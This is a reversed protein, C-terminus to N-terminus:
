KDKGAMVLEKEQPVDELRAETEPYHPFVAQPVIVTLHEDFKRDYGIHVIEAKYIYCVLLLHKNFNGQWFDVKAKADEKNILFYFGDGQLSINIGGLYVCHPIELCRGYPNVYRDNRDSEIMAMKYVVIVEPKDALWAEMETDTFVRSLCM